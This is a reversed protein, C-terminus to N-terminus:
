DSDKNQRSSPEMTWLKELAYFDRTTQQMVHLVIDGYDVLVWEGVDMGEIGLPQFGQKKGEVIASNAISKVHRNSTGTVIILTDMVDSIGTVDLVKVDQGKLDEIAESLLAHLSQTM